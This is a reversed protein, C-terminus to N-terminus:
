MEGNLREIKVADSSKSINAIEVNLLVEGKFHKLDKTFTILSSKPKEDFKRTLFLPSRVRLKMGLNSHLPLPHSQAAKTITSVCGGCTMGLVKLQLKM